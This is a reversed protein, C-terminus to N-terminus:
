AATGGGPVAAREAPGDSKLSPPTILPDDTRSAARTALHEDSRPRQSPGEDLLMPLNRALGWLPVLLLLIALLLVVLGAASGAGTAFSVEPPRGTAVILIVDSM